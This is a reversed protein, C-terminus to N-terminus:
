RVLVAADGYEMALPDPDDWLVGAPDANATGNDTVTLSSFLFSTTPASTAKVAGALPALPVKAPPDLEIVTVVSALPIATAGVNVALSM